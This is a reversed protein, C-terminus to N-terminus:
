AAAEARESRWVLWEVMSKEGKSSNCSGCLTQLNDDDDTGGRILAINHDINLNEKSGCGLCKHGDRAHIRARQEDSVEAIRAVRRPKQIGTDLLDAAFTEKSLWTIRLFGAAELTALHKKVTRASLGKCVITSLSTEVRRPAVADGAMFMLIGKQHGTGPHQNRVWDLVARVHQEKEESWM